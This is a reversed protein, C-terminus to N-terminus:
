PNNKQVQAWERVKHLWVTRKMTRSDQLFRLLCADNVGPLVTSESQRIYVGDELNFLTLERGDYRWVETVGISAFIPFKNLSPSTIDIEIVLDPAPDIMLDIEDKIRILAAHEIYFSADPEFGRALDERRFTTSGAGEVDIGWEWALLEVLTALTHKLREHKLSLIMIELRGRDYSLHTGSSAQLEHLLREYTEWSVSDLIVKQEVPEPPHMVAAM